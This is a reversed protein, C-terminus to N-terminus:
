RGGCAWRAARPASSSAGKRWCRPWPSPRPKTKWVEQGTAADLAITNGDLTNFFLRGGGYVAGRNVVDCCAVGQSAQEPKPQYHWKVPHDPKTLDLAYVDNPYPTTVYMTDDVVLPAAEHGRRIGDDFTFALKLSGVNRSNIEGLPSFRTGAPDGLQATWEGSSDPTLWSPPLARASASPLLALRTADGGFRSQSPQHSFDIALAMATVLAAAAGLAIALRAHPVRM